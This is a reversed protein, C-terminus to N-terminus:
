SVSYRQERTSIIWTLQFLCPPDHTLRIPDPTPRYLHLNAVFSFAWCLGRLSCVVPQASLTFVCLRLSLDSTCAAQTALHGRLRIPSFASARSPLVFCRPPAGDIESVHSWSNPQATRFPNSQVAMKIMERGSKSAICESKKESPEKWKLSCGNLTSCRAALRQACLRFELYFNIARQNLNRTV